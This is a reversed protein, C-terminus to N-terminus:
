TSTGEELDEAITPLPTTAMLGGLQVTITNNQISRNIAWSPDVQMETCM